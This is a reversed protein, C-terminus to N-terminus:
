PRLILTGDEALKLGLKDLERRNVRELSGETFWEKPIDKCRRQIYERGRDTPEILTVLNQGASIEYFKIISGDRSKIYGYDKLHECESRFSDSDQYKYQDLLTIGCLHRFTWVPMMNVILMDAIDAKFDAIQQSINPEITGLERITDRITDCAAGVAAKYSKDSRPWDYTATKVGSLDSPIKLTPGSQHLILTRSRGLHGMFLGLEFIVNDRPGFTEINRSRTLDDPTLVLVAFDFRPLEKVLTEIFTDGIAFFGENWLSIEADKDLLSRAARAFELGESSSGIFISPRNM